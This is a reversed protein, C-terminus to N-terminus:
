GIKIICHISKKPPPGSSLVSGLVKSKSPLYEVVLSFGWGRLLQYEHHLIQLNLIAMHLLSVNRRQRVGRDSIWNSVCITMFNTSYRRKQKNGLYRIYTKVKGGFKVNRAFAKVTIIMHTSGSNTLV